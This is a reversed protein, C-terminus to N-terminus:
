KSPASWSFAAPQDAFPLADFNQAAPKGRLKADAFDLLATWDEVTHAHGGHRYHIGTKDGAGLWDFAVKSALFTMQSGSPNAWLDDVSETTLLARPAVLAKLEHQDFPLQDVHGIFDGFGPGFWYPFKTVIKELTESKPGQVRFCGGGGSGSANPNTLAVREDLAGALLVAKGGRSHGSIIIKTADVDPRTLLYDIVRSYGWAWAASGGADCQPDLLYIGTSRDKSDAAFNTRDFECLGYGRAIVMAEIDPKVRGWCLDGTVIVPFPGKGSPLNLVLPVTLKGETGVHLTVNTASITTATVPVSEVPPHGYEYKLFLEKLEARRKAWDDPTKVRTGDEFLFPNPLEKIASLANIGPAPQSTPAEASFAMTTTSILIVLASFAPPINM